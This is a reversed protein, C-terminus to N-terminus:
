TRGTATVLDVPTPTKIQCGRGLKILIAPIQTAFEPLGLGGTVAEEYATRFLELV